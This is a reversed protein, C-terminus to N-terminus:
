ITPKTFTTWDCQDDNHLVPRHRADPVVAGPLDDRAWLGLNPLQGSEKAPLMKHASRKSNVTVRVMQTLGSRARNRRATIRQRRQEENCANLRRRM